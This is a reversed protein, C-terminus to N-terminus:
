LKAWKAWLNVVPVKKLNAYRVCNATGGSTGNWLAVIAASNDVMWENRKQMKWVDYGGACVVVVKKAHQLLVKYRKQSLAPWLSDQGNFPVAAIFSISLALAAEAWAMDWGLAMGSIVHKLRDARPKLFDHALQCRKTDADASYGGIKNPRHGTASLILTGKPVRDIHFTPSGTFAQSCTERHKGSGGCFPCAGTKLQEINTLRAPQRTGATM